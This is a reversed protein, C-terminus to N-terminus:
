ERRTDSAQATWPVRLLSLAPARSPRPLPSPAAVAATAAAACHARLWPQAAPQQANFAVAFAPWRGPRGLWGGGEQLGILILLQAAVRQHAQRVVQVRDLAHRARSQVPLPLPRAPRSSHCASEACRRAALAPPQLARPRQVCTRPLRSCFVPLFLPLLQLRPKFYVLTVRQGTSRLYTLSPDIFVSYGIIMPPSLKPQPDDRSCAGTASPADPSRGARQTAACRPAPPACHRAPHPRAGAGPM